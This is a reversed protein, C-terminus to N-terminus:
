LDVSGAAKENIVYYAKNEEPKIYLRLSKVDSEKHGDASYAEKAAKIIEEVVFERGQFQVFVNEAKEASKTAKAAKAPAKKTEKKVEKKVEAAPAAAVTKVEETKKETVKKEM